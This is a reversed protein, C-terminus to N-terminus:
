LNRKKLNSKTTTQIKSLIQLLEECDTFLSQFMNHNIYETDKLIRLWYRTERQELQHEM